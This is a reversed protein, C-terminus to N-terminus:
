RLRPRLDGPDPGSQPQYLPHLHRVTGVSARCDARRHGAEVTVDLATTPEDLLLLSPNSLLAMAIVVRQQQGGSIQHPYAGDGAGSRAAPCQGADRRGSRPWRRGHCGPEHFLPVEMLQSGIKMSPNLAAMPEQYVMAIQSGRLARLEEESMTTMDRGKSSSRVASMIRGNRKGMIGCSRWPSRPSAAAPNARGARGGRRPM